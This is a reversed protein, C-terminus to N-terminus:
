PKETSGKELVFGEPLTNTDISKNGKVDEWPHDAKVPYRKLGVIFEIRGTWRDFLFATQQEGSLPVVAYRGLVAFLVLALAFAGVVCSIKLRETM